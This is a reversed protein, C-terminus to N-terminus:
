LLLLIINIFRFCLHKSINTVLPMAWSHLLLHVIALWLLACVLLKGVAILRLILSIKIRVNMGYSYNVIQCVKNIDELTIEADKHKNVFALFQYKARIFDAKVPSYQFLVCVDANNEV